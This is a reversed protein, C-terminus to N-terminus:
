PIDFCGFTHCSKFRESCVCRDLKGYVANMEQGLSGVLKNHAVLWVSDVDHVHLALNHAREWTALALATVHNAATQTRATFPNVTDTFVHDQIAKRHLAALKLSSQSYNVYKRIM